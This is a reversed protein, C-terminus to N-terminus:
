RSIEIKVRKNKIKQDKILKIVSDIKSRSVAAYSSFDQVEILGLEDKLLKGKQLLLGVIDIKNIKDKKGAGIYLTIWPTNDPLIDMEPLEELESKDILFAPKEDETLIVYATGKSNMRATRGNRHLFAEENHPLQYHIVFEIEPIDLGRSALDTTILIRYSGNRFKLLAKERDDQEMGGHFIGHDLKMDWLLASIRDVADRHNCFVLTAKNGIKCMLSFLTELKDAAESVVQKIKLDPIINSDKLFNVEMPKKIGAFAPIELMKTASTLIRRKLNELKSIIFAMDVEFGFELAKDFEDLVLTHIPAPNFNENRVHYAIRGPTGILVAPPEVLNNKETKVPHGGYCCNVKFGTGMIKFVQEIQLALERSPVLIIAQIGTSNVDLRSLVPLLFALTKGSGTPSLLITDHNEAAQIAEHQMDNLAVIKLNKLVNEVM